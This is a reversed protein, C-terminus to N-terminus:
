RRSLGIFSSQATSKVEANDVATIDFAIKSSGAPANQPEVQVSVNLEYTAAAPVTIIENPT